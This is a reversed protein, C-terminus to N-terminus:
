TKGQFSQMIRGYNGADIWFNHKQVLMDVLERARKASFVRKEFGLHILGLTGSVPIDAATLIGRLFKDDALAIDPRASKALEFVSWDAVSGAGKLPSSLNLARIKWHRLERELDKKEQPEASELIEKAVQSSLLFPPYFLSRVLSIHGIKGLFILPSANSVVSM